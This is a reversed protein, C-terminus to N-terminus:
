YRPFLTGPATLIRFILEDLLDHESRRSGIGKIQADFRRIARIVEICQWANYRQRAANLRKLPYPSKLGLAQQLSRDSKDPTSYVVMLDAFFNFLAAALMVMPVAKPNARFYAAIRRAREADKLALADVLEFANYDKSVGVNAEVAEPTVVAGAPLISILKDVENYLRSLDAGIFEKFMEVARPQVNLGRSNIHATIHEALNWEAIKKSEFIVAGSKKLAAMMNKGKAAAGRSALVLVTQPNPAQIYGALRDLQDARAGQMEKVIVVQREAMVPLRRCVDVVEEMPTQPAYLVYQNFAKEDDPLVNEFDRVLADIFYGEEGHLLYVPALTGKKILARLGEFTVTNAAM